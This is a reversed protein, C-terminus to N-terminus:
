VMLERLRQELFRREPEQKAHSLAERFAAAAEDLKGARRFLEGRAAHFLHYGALEKRGDLRAILDLGPEPGDRMAIAVARNLEVIPSPTAHMLLEYWTVIQGWNTEAASPAAAHEASIAAQITYAGVEAASLARALWDRAEGIMTRDWLSRDQEELLVLDGARDTRAPRRSEHFLMLAVLGFVEADPVLECLLRGLRIAEGTLEGRTHFEGSSASYGEN